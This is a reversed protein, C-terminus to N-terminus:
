RLVPLLRSESRRARKCETALEVLMTAEDFTLPRDHEWVYHEIEEFREESMVEQGGITIGPGRFAPSERLWLLAEQLKTLVLSHERTPVLNRACEIAKLIAQQTENM